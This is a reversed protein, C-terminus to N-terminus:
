AIRSMSAFLACLGGVQLAQAAVFSRVYGAPLALRRMKAFSYASSGAAYLAVAAMNVAPSIAAPALFLPLSIAVVILLSYKRQASFADLVRLKEDPSLGALAREHLFRSAVVAALFVLPGIIALDM